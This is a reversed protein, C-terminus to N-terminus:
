VQAHLWYVIFMLLYHTLIYGFIIQIRKSVILNWWVYQTRKILKTVCMNGKSLLCYLFGTLSVNKIIKIKRLSQCHFDIVHVHIFVYFLVLSQYYYLVSKWVCTGNALTQSLDKNFRAREFLVFVLSNLYACSTM